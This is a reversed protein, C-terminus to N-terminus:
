RMSLAYRRLTEPVRIANTLATPRPNRTEEDGCKGWSPWRM